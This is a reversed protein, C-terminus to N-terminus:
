WVCLFIFYFNLLLVRCLCMCQFCCIFAVIKYFLENIYLLTLAFTATFLTQMISDFCSDTHLCINASTTKYAFQLLSVHCPIHYLQTVFPNTCFIHSINFLSCSESVNNCICSCLHCDLTCRAIYKVVISAYIICQM